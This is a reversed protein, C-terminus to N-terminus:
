AGGEPRARRWGEAVVAALWGVIIIISAGLIM